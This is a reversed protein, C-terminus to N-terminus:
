LSNWPMNQKEGWFSKKSEVEVKKLPWLLYLLLKALLHCWSKHLLLFVPPKSPMRSLFHSHSSTDTRQWQRQSCLASPTQFLSVASLKPQLDGLDEPIPFKFMIWPDAINKHDAQIGKWPPLYLWQFHCDKSNSRPEFGAQQKSAKLRLCASLGTTGGNRVHPRPLSYYRSQPKSHPSFSIIWGFHKTCDQPCLLGWYIIEESLHPSTLLFSWTSLSPAGGWRPRSRLPPPHNGQPM